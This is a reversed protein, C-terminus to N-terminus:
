AGGGGGGGKERKRRGLGSGTASVACDPEFANPVHSPPYLSPPRPGTPEVYAYM